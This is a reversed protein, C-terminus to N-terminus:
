PNYVLRVSLGFFRSIKAIALEETERFNLYYAQESDSPTSSWYRGSFGGPFVSGNGYRFGAAPLFLSEGNNGTVKYGSGTWSWQCGTKLEEWQVKTPLTSGFKEIAEDYTYFNNEDNPNAENTAKWKTGSPLGLDVYGAPTTGTETTETDTNDKDCSTIALGMLCIMSFFLVKKM